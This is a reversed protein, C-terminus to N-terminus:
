EEKNIVKSLASSNPAMIINFSIPTATGETALTASGLIVDDFKGSTRLSAMFKALAEYSVTVGSLTLRGEDDSALQDLSVNKTTQSALEGLLISWYNKSSNIGSINEEAAFIQKAKNDVEGMGATEDTVSALKKEISSAQYKRGLSIGWFVVAVALSTIALIIFITAVGVGGPKMTQKEQKNPEM